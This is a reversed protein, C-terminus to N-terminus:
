VKICLFERSFIASISNKIFHGGYGLSGHVLQILGAIVRIIPHHKHLVAAAVADHALTSKSPNKFRVADPLPNGAPPRAAPRATFLLRCSTQVLSLTLECYSGHCLLQQVTAYARMCSDMHMKASLRCTNVPTTSCWAHAPTYTLCINHVDAYLNAERERYSTCICDIYLYVYIYIHMHM